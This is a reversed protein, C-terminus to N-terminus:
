LIRGLINRSRIDLSNTDVIEFRNGDVDNILIHNSSLWHANEQLDDTVFERAGRNTEVKWYIVDYEVKAELISIIVSTLNKRRIEDTVARYSDQSLQGPDEILIIESGSADLISLYKNRRSLPSAWLPKVSIYSCQNLITLRLQSDATHFLDLMDVTYM